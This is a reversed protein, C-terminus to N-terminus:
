SRPSHPPSLTLHLNLKPTVQVLSEFSLPKVIYNVVGLRSCEIIMRDSRSITLVVVPIEKMRLDGKIRRLFEMGSIGPLNLDLLILAPQGPGNSAYEGIGCLFDWAGEADPLIRLPNTMRALRFARLTLSADAANDEILLIERSPRSGPMSDQGLALHGPASAYSLLNSVTVQLANALNEISRLTVNRAGREIDAIYTRHMKSRWALEEQTIGLQKRLLKVVMGLWKQLARDDKPISRSTIM